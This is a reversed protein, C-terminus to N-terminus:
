APNPVALHCHVCLVECNYLLDGGGESEPRIHLFEASAMTLVKGCYECTYDTRRLAREKTVRSFPMELYNTVPGCGGPMRPTNCRCPVGILGIVARSRYNARAPM